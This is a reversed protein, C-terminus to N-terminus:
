IHRTRRCAVQQLSFKLLESLMRDLTERGTLEKESDKTDLETEEQQLDIAVSQCATNADSVIATSSQGAGTMGPDSLTQRNWIHTDLIPRQM